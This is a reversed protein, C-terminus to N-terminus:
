IICKYYTFSNRDNITDKTVHIFKKVFILIFSPNECIYITFLIEYIFNIKILYYKKLHKPSSPHKNSEICRKCYM